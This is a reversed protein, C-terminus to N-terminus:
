SWGGIKAVAVHEVMLKAVEALDRGLWTRKSWTLDLHGDHYPDGLDDVAHHCSCPCVPVALLRDLERAALRRIRGARRTAASM